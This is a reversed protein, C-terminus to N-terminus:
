KPKRGTIRKAPARGEDLRKSEREELQDLRGLIKDLVEVTKVAAKSQMMQGARVHADPDHFDTAIGGGGFIGGSTGTFIGNPDTSEQELWRERAERQSESEGRMRQTQASIPFDLGNVKREQAIGGARERRALASGGKRMALFRVVAEEAEDGEIGEAELEEMFEALTMRAM